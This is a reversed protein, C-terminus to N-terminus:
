CDQKQDESDFTLYLESKKMEPKYTFSSKM